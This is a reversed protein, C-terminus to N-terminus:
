RLRSEKLIEINLLKWAGEDTTLTLAAQYSNVREHIHGFHRVKGFVQWSADVVFNKDDRRISNIKDFSVKLIKVKPGGRSIAEIRKRYKLYIANLEDGVLSKALSDYISPETPYEFALYINTILGTLIRAASKEDLKPRGQWTKELVPVPELKPLQFIEKAVSWDLILFFESFEFNQIGKPTSIQVPLRKARGPLRNWSFEFSSIIGDLPYTYAIGLVADSLKEEVLREKVVSDIAGLRLIDGTAGAPAVPEGQLFFTFHQSFYQTAEKILLKQEQPTIISADELQFELDGVLTECRAILEVRVEQPEVSIFQM